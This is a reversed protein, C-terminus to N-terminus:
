RVMVILKGAINALRRRHEPEVQLMKMILRKPGIPIRDPVVYNGKLVKLYMEKNSGGKFPFLGTLIAYFVIGLAWVDVLEYDFERKKLLEPAM